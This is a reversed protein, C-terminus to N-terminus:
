QKEGVMKCWAIFAADPDVIDIGNKITAERWQAELAYIDYRKAHKKAREYTGTKLSLFDVTNDIRITVPDTKTKIRKAILYREKGVKEEILEYDLLAGEEVIEHLARSFYKYSQKSGSREHLTRFKWRWGEDKYGAQKRVTRYVWRKLGGKLLFFDRNLTLVLGENTVADFLWEPIVVLAEKVQEDEDANIEFYEIWNFGIMKKGKPARITTEVTTSNLRRISDALRKYDTGSTSRRVDRLYAGRSFRIQRSVPLDNNMAHRVQSLLWIILDWDWITAIGHVNSGSVIIEVRDDKYRIPDVRKKELSLLPVEMSDQVDKLSVDSFVAAFIDIQSDGKPPKRLGM